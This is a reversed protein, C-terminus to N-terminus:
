RRAALGPERGRIEIVVQKDFHSLPDFDRITGPRRRAARQLPRRKRAAASRSITPWVSASIPMGERVTSPIVANTAATVQSAAADALMPQTGPIMSNALATSKPLAARVVLTESPSPRLRRNAPMACSEISSTTATGHAIAGPRPRIMAPRIAGATTMTTNERKLGDMQSLDPQSFAYTNTHTRAPPITTV